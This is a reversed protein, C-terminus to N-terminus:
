QKYVLTSGIETKLYYTGHNLKSINFIFNKDSHELLTVDNTVEQGLTNYFAIKAAKISTKTQLKFRDNAPNPFVFLQADENIDIEVKRVMSYSYLGDFDTQKLRYFVTKGFPHYDYSHYKIAINSNGAGDVTSLAEWTVGNRSRQVTFFDNKTESATELTLAVEVNATLSAQFTMLEIPLPTQTANITGITFRRTNSISSISTFEFVNSGLNLAGSIPTEDAFTGDNDTDILLRLDSASISGLGSLDFSMDINGVDVSSNSADVESVRWVRDLRAQVPAPVDSFDVAEQVGNDHGWILYENNGLGTPNSIRVIGTGQADNHLNSADVRGIGAVDHDYDGNAPNDMTYIDNSAASINYKASLYNEVIIRQASNVTTTFVIVETVDGVFGNTGSTNGGINFRQGAHSTYSTTNARNQLLSGNRYLQKGNTPNADYSWYSYSNLGTLGGVQIRASTGCCAGIDYYVTNSWPIHNSFRTSGVLPDTTYVCSSQSTNNARCVTFSSAEDNVFNSTTLTLGTRLRNSGSFSMEDYGNVASTVLTPRQGGSESIDLAAIGASNAIADISSGSISVGNDTRYWIKLSSSGDASGIGGPGTQSWGSATLFSFSFFFFITKVNDM